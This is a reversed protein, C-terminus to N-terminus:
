MDNPYMFFRANEEISFSVIPVFIISRWQVKQLSNIEFRRVLRQHFEQLTSMLKTISMNPLCSSQSSSVHQKIDDEQRLAPERIVHALARNTIILATDINRSQPATGPSPHSSSEALERDQIVYAPYVMLLGFIRINLKKNVERNRRIIILM